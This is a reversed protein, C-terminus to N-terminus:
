KGTSKWDTYEYKNPVFFAFIKQYDTEVIILLSNFIKM